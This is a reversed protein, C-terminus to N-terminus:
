PQEIRNVMELLYKLRNEEILIDDPNFTAGISGGTMLYKGAKNIHVLGYYCHGIEHYLIAIQTYEPFATYRTGNLGILSPGHDKIMPLYCKAQIDPDEDVIEIDLMSFDITNRHIKILDENFMKLIYDYEHTTPGYRSNQCSSLLLLCVVLRIATKIM